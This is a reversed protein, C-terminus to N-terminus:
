TSRFNDVFVKVKRIVVVGRELISTTGIIRCDIAKSAASLASQEVLRFNLVVQHTLYSLMYSMTSLSVQTLLDILM